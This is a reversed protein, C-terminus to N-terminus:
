SRKRPAAAVRKTAAAGAAPEFLARYRELIQSATEEIASKTVDLVTWGPHKEFVKRSWELEDRVHRMDGYDSEDIVGLQQMRTRRKEVLTAADLLLGFVRRPDVSDLEKPPPIGAVLPVNSVRYGRHAIYSSLPTKSTRSIGVLVIDAKKLNRPERGDDNNVQFEVAEVRRFYEADLEHGLGPKYLPDQGFHNGMQLLLVGLFASFMDEWSQHTKLVNLKAM